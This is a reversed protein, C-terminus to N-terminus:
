SYTSGKIKIINKKAKFVFKCLIYKLFIESECAIRIEYKEINYSKIRAPVATGYSEVIDQFQKEIVQTVIIGPPPRKGFKKKFHNGIMTRAIIVTAIILFFIIVISTVKTSRKM